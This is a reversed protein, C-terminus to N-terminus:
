LPNGNGEGICSLSFHFHLRETKQKPEELLLHMKTGRFVSANGPSSWSAQLAATRPTAFLRAHSLLQVSSSLSEAVPM